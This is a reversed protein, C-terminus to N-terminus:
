VNKAYIETNNSQISKYTMQINKRLRKYLHETEQTVTETHCSYM